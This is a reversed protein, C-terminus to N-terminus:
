QYYQSLMNMMIPPSHLFTGNIRLITSPVSVELAAMTGEGFDPSLLDSYSGSYTLTDFGEDKFFNLVDSSTPKPVAIRLQKGVAYIAPIYFFVSLTLCLYYPFICLLTNFFSFNIGKPDDLSMQSDNLVLEQARMLALGVAVLLSPMVLMFFLSQPSRILRRIRLLCLTKMSDMLNINMESQDPILNCEEGVTGNENESKDDTLGNNTTASTNNQKEEWTDSSIKLFVQFIFRHYIDL